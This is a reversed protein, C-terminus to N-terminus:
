IPNLLPSVGQSPYTPRLLANTMARLMMEIKDSGVDEDFLSGMIIGEGTALFM